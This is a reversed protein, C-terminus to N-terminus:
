EDLAACIFSIFLFYLKNRFNTSLSLFIKLISFLLHFFKLKVSAYVTASLGTIYRMIHVESTIVFDPYCLFHGLRKIGHM